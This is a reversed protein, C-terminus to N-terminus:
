LSQCLVQKDVAKAISGHATLVVVDATCEGKKLEALIELGGMDPLNLDLIIIDFSKRRAAALAASGDGATEAAHEWFKFRDSLARRLGADDDVILVNARM